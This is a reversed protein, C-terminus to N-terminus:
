NSEDSSIREVKEWLRSLLATVVVIAIFYAFPTVTVSASSAAVGLLEKVSYILVVHDMPMMLNCYYEILLANVVVYLFMLGKYIKYSVKPFFWYALMFPLLLWCSIHCFLYFDYVVGRMVNWFQSAEVEIRWHVEVFFFLRLVIMFVLLLVNLKMFKSLGDKINNM